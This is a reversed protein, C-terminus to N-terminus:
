AAEDEAEESDSDSQDDSAQEAMQTTLEVLESDRLGTETLVGNLVRKLGISSILERGVLSWNRRASVASLSLLSQDLEEYVCMVTTWRFGKEAAIGALVASESTAKNVEVVFLRPKHQSALGQIEATDETAGVQHLPDIDVSVSKFWDVFSQSGFTFIGTPVDM